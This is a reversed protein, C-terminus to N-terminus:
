ELQIHPTFAPNSGLAAPGVQFGSGITAFCYRHFEFGLAGGILRRTRGASSIAEAGTILASVAADSCSTQGDRGIGAQDAAGFVALVSKPPCARHSHSRARGTAGLMLTKMVNDRGLQPM